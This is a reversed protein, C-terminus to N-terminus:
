ALLNYENNLLNSLREAKKADLGYEKVLRSVKQEIPEPDEKTLFIREVVGESIKIDLKLFKSTKESRKVHKHMHNIREGMKQTSGSLSSINIANRESMVSNNNISPRFTCGVTQSNEKEIRKEELEIERVRKEITLFDIHSLTENRPLALKGENIYKSAKNWIKNRYNNAMRDEYQSAPRNLAKKSQSNTRVKQFNHKIQRECALKARKFDAFYIQINKVTKQDLVIDNNEDYDCVHDTCVSTILNSGHEHDFEDYIDTLDRPESILYQNKISNNNYLQTNFNKRQSSIKDTLNGHPSPHNFLTVRKASTKWGPEITHDVIKNNRLDPTEHVMSETHEELDFSIGFVALIFLTLSRTNVLGSSSPDLFLFMKQLLQVESDSPESNIFHMDLLIKIVTQPDLKLDGFASKEEEAIVNNAIMASYIEQLLKERLIDNSSECVQAPSHVLPQCYTPNDRYIVPNSQYNIAKINSRGTVLTKTTSKSRSREVRSHSRNLINSSTTNHLNKSSFRDPLLRASHRNTPYVVQSQTGDYTKYPSVRSRRDDQISVSLDIQNVKSNHLSSSNQPPRTSNPTLDRRLIKNLANKAPQKIIERSVSKADGIQMNKAQLLERHSRNRNELTKNLNNGTIETDNNSSNRTSKIVASTNRRVVSRSSREQNAISNKNDGIDKKPQNYTGKRFGKYFDSESDAECVGNIKPTFTCNALEDAFKQSLKREKTAKYDAGKQLLRDAVNRSSSRRSHSKVSTASKNNSARDEDNKTPLSVLPTLIRGSTERHFSTQSKAKDNQSKAKLDSVNTEQTPILNASRDKTPREEKPSEFTNDNKIFLMAAEPKGKTSSKAKLWKSPLSAEQDNETKKESNKFFGLSKTLPHVKHCPSPIDNSMNVPGTEQGTVKLFQSLELKKVSSHHSCFNKHIEHADFCHTKAQKQFAGNPFNFNRQQPLDPDCNADFGPLEAVSCIREDCEQCGFPELDVSVVNQAFNKSTNFDMPALGINYLLSNGTHEVPPVTIKQTADPLFRQETGPNNQTSAMDYGGKKNSDSDILLDGPKNSNLYQDLDKPSLGKLPPEELHKFSDIRYDINIDGKDSRKSAQSHLEAQSIVNFSNFVIGVKKTSSLRFPHKSYDINQKAEKACIESQHKERLMMYNKDENEFFSIDSKERGIVSQREEQDMKALKSEIEKASEVKNNKTESTKQRDVFNSKYYPYKTPTLRPSSKNQNEEVQVCSSRGLGNLNAVYNNGVELHSIYNHIGSKSTQNTNPNATTIFGSGEQQIQSRSVNQLRETRTTMMNSLCSDAIDEPIIPLSDKRNPHTSKIKGMEQTLWSEMAMSERNNTQEGPLQEDAAIEYVSSVMSRHVSGDIDHRLETEYIDPGFCTSDRLIQFGFTVPVQASFYEKRKPDNDQDRVLVSIETQNQEPLSNLM